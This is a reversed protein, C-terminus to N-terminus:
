KPDEVMVFSVEALSPLESDNMVKNYATEPLTIKISKGAQKNKAMYRISNLSLNISENFEVDIGLGYIKIDELKPCRRFPQYCSTVYKMGIIGNVVRLKSNDSMLSDCETGCNFGYEPYDVDYTCVNLVELGSYAFAAIANTKSYDKFLPMYRRNGVMFNTRAATYALRFDMSGGVIPYYDHTDQWIVKMQEETIDTLGNLSYLGTTSDYTAGQMIYLQRAVNAEPGTDGTDGKEGKADEVKAISFSYATEKYTVSKTTFVHYRAGMLTLVFHLTGNYLYIYSTRVSFRDASTETKSDAFGKAKFVAEVPEFTEASLTRVLENMVPVDTTALTFSATSLDLDEDNFLFAGGVSRYWGGGSMRAYEGDIAIRRGVARAGCFTRGNAYNTGRIYSQLTGMAGGAPLVFNYTVVFTITYTNNGKELEIVYIDDSNYTSLEYGYQALQDALGLDPTVVGDIAAYSVPEAPTMSQSVQCYARKVISKFNGLANVNAQFRMTAGETQTDVSVSCSLILKDSHTSSVSIRESTKGTFDIEGDANDLLSLQPANGNENAALAFGRGYMYARSELRVTKLAELNYTGDSSDGGRKLADSQTPNTSSTGTGVNALAVNLSKVEDKLQNVTGQTVYRTIEYSTGCGDLRKEYSYIRSVIEKGHYKLVVADGITLDILSDVYPKVSYTIDKRKDLYWKKFQTELETKSNATENGDIYAGKINYVCVWDGVQPRLVENPIIYGNTDQKIIQFEYWREGTGSDTQLIAAVEFEFGALIPTNTSTGEQKVIFKISLKKGSAVVDEANQVDVSDDNILKFIYDSFAKIKLNYVSYMKYVPNGNKDYGAVEDSTIRYPTVGTIQYDSRPYIDDFTVVEEGTGDSVGFMTYADIPNDLAIRKTVLSTVYEEGQKLVDVTQDINRSSGFVYYYRSLGSKQNVSPAGINEGTVLATRKSTDKKRTGDELFITSGNDYVVSSDCEGFHLVYEGNDYTFWWELEFEKALNNLTAIISTASFSFTHKETNECYFTDSLRCPCSRASDQTNKILIAIINKANDTISWESERKVIKGNSYTNFLFMYKELNYWPANFKPEFSFTAEDSMTPIYDEELVYAMGNYTISDGAKLGMDYADTFSLQIYDEKMLTAKHTAKSTVPVEYTGAATTIEM